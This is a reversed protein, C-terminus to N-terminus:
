TSLLSGNSGCSSTCGKSRRWRDAEAKQLRMQLQGDERVDWSCDAVRGALPVLLTVAARVELTGETWSVRVSSRPAPPLALVVYVFADDEDWEYSATKRRFEEM